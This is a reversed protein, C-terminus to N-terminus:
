LVSFEGHCLVHFLISCCIQSFCEVNLLKTTALSKVRLQVISTATVHDAVSSFTQFNAIICFMLFYSFFMNLWFMTVILTVLFYCNM